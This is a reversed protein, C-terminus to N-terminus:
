ISSIVSYEGCIPIAPHKDHLDRCQPSMTLHALSHGFWSPSLGNSHRYYGEAHPFRIPDRNSLVISGVTCTASEITSTSRLASQAPRDM